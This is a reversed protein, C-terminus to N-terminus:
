FTARDELRLLQVAGNKEQPQEFTACTAKSEDFEVVRHNPLGLDALNLYDMWRNYRNAIASWYWNGSLGLGVMELFVKVDPTLLRNGASDSLYADMNEKHQKELPRIKEELLLQKARSVPLGVQKMLYWVANAMNTNNLVELCAERNFSYVDNTLASAAAAPWWVPMLIEIDSQTLDLGCCYIIITM